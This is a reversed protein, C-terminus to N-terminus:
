FCNRTTYVPALPFNMLNEPKGTEDCRILGTQSQETCIRRAAAELASDTGTIDIVVRGRRRLVLDELVARITCADSWEVPIFRCKGGFGHGHLLRLWEPNEEAGLFILEKPDLILAARLNEATTKGVPKILCFSNDGWLLWPLNRIITLDPAKYDRCASFEAFISLNRQLTEMEECINMGNEEYLRQLRPLTGDEGPFRLCATQLCIEKQVKELERELLAARHEAVIGSRVAAATKRHLKSFLRGITDDELIERCKEGSFLHLKLSVRDLPDMDTGSMAEPNDYDSPKLVLGSESCPVLCPHLKRERCKWAANFKGDVVEFGYRLLEPDTPLRYGDAIMYMMWRTHENQLLTGLAPGSLAELYAQIGHEDPTDHEPVFGIGALKYKLHLAAACSSRQSYEDTVLGEASRALSIGASSLRNYLHALKLTRLGLERLTCTYGMLDESFSDVELWPPLQNRQIGGVINNAADEGCYYNIITKRNGSGGQRALTGSYLQAAALNLRNRGLSILIYRADGYQQLVSACIKEDLIDPVWTYSFNVFTKERSCVLNSYLELAPAAKRLRSVFDEKKRNSVVHIHLRSGIIQGCSILSLIMRHVFVGSGLCLVHIDGDGSRYRYLPHKELVLYSMLEDPSVLPLLNGYQRYRNELEELADLLQKATQFRAQQAPALGRRFFAILSDSFSSTGHFAPLGASYGRRIQEEWDTSFLRSEATFLSGTAAYFLIAALAYIDSSEDPEYGCGSDGYEALARVEPASFPNVTRCDGARGESRDMASGYDIIYPQRRTKGDALALYINDPSLDLHLLDASDHLASLRITTKKLIRIIEELFQNSEIHGDCHRVFGREIFQGLSEGQFSDVALYLNGRTDEMPGEARLIDANNQQQFAGDEGYVIGAKQTLMVEKQFCARGKELFYREERNSQSFPMCCLIKGDEQRQVVGNDMFRPFYEKLAVYRGSGELHALYLLSFGGEALKRDIVYRKEPTITVTDGPKLPVRIDSTNLYM